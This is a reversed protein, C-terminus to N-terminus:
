SHSLYIIDFIEIFIFLFTQPLYGPNCPVIKSGYLFVGALFIPIFCRLRFDLWLAKRHEPRIDGNYVSPQLCVSSNGSFLSMGGFSDKVTQLVFVPIRAAIGGHLYVDSHLLMEHLHLPFAMNRQLVLRPISLHVKSRKQVIVHVPSLLGSVCKSHGKGVGVLTIRLSKRGLILLAQQFPHFPDKFVNTSHWLVQPEVIHGGSHNLHKAAIVTDERITEVSEHEM